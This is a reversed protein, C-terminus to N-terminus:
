SIFARAGGADAGAAANLRRLVAQPLMRGVPGQAPLRLAVLIIRIELRSNRFVLAAVPASAPAPARGTKASRPEAVSQTVNPFDPTFTVRRARPVPVLLPRTCCCSPWSPKVRRTRWAYALPM